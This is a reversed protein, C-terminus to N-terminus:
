SPDCPQGWAQLFRHPDAHNGKWIVEWHLHPAEVRGTAGSLGILQGPKVAQGEKVKIKSLHMYRSFLGGGHNLVVVKGPVVMPNAYSVHGAAIAHIGTGTPARLDVGTHYYSRGNPLTRPSAFRSVVKSRLPHTFCRQHFSGARQALIGQMLKKEYHKQAAYKDDMKKWTSAPIRLRKAKSIATQVKPIRLRYFRVREHPSWASNKKAPAAGYILASQGQDLGVIGFWRDGEPTISFTEGNIHPPGYSKTLPFGIPDGPKVLGPTPWNPTEWSEHVLDYSPFFSLLCLGAYILLFM